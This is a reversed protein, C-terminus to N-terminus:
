VMSDINTVTPIVANKIAAKVGVHNIKFPASTSIPYKPYWLIAHNKYENIISQERDVNM